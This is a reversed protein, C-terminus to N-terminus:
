VKKLKDIGKQIKKSFTKKPNTERIEKEIIIIAYFKPITLYKKFNKRNIKPRKRLFYFGHNRSWQNSHNKEMRFVLPLVHKQSSQRYIVRCRM